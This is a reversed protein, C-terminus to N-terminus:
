FVGVLWQLGSFGVLGDHRRLRLHRLKRRARDKPANHKARNERDSRCIRSQLNALHHLGCDGDGDKGDAQCPNVPAARAQKLVDDDRSDPACGAAHNGAGNEREWRKVNKVEIRVRHLGDEDTQRAATETNEEENRQSPVEDALHVAQQRIRLRCGDGFHENGSLFATRLGLQQQLCGSDRANVVEEYGRKLNPFLVHIELEDGYHM